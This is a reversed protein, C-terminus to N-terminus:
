TGESNALDRLLLAEIDNTLKLIRVYSSVLLRNNARTAFIEFLTARAETGLNITHLLIKLAGARTLSSVLTLALATHRDSRAALEMIDLILESPLKSSM